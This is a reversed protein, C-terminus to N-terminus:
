QQSLGLKQILQALQQDQADGGQLQQMDTPPQQAQQQQMAAQQQMAQSIMQADQNADQQEMRQDGVMSQKQMAGQNAMEQQKMMSEQQMQATQKDRELLRKQYNYTVRRIREQLVANSTSSRIGMLEAAMEAGEPGQSQMLTVAMSINSELMQGDPNIYVGYDAELFQLLDPNEIKSWELQRLINVAKSVVDTSFWVACDFIIQNSMLAANQQNVQLSASSYSAMNGTIADNVGSAEQMVKMFMDYFRAYLEMTPSMSLDLTSTLGAKGDYTEDIDSNDQIIPMQRAEKLWDIAKQSGQPGKGAHLIGLKGWDRAMAQHIKTMCIDIGDQAMRMTAVPSVWDGMYMGPACFMVTLATSAYNDEIKRIQNKEKGYAVLIEGGILVGSCRVQRGYAPTKGKRRRDSPKYEHINEHKDKSFGVDLLEHAIWQLYLVGVRGDRSTRNTYWYYNPDTPVLNMTLAGMQLVRDREQQTMENGYRELIEAPNMFQMYGAYRADNFCPDIAGFDWVAQEPMIKHLCLRGNEVELHVGALGEVVECNQIWQLTRQAQSTKLWKDLLAQGHIEVAESTLDTIDQQDLDGTPVHFGIGLEQMDQLFLKSQQLLETLDKRYQKREISNPDIAEVQFQMSKVFNSLHGYLTSAKTHLESGKYIEGPIGADDGMQYIYQFNSTERTNM